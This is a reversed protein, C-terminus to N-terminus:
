LQNRLALEAVNIVDEKIRPDAIVVPIFATDASPTTENSLLDRLLRNAIIEARQVIAKDDGHVFNLAICLRGAIASDKVVPFWSQLQEEVLDEEGYLWLVIGAEPNKLASRSASFREQGPIGFLGVERNDARKWIGYDISVTTSSKGPAVFEQAAAKAETTITLISSLTEISTTKGIGVPGAFVLELTTPSGVISDRPATFSPDLDVVDLEDVKGHRRRRFSQAIM